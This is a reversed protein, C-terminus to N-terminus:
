LDASNRHFGNPRIPSKGLLRIATNRGFKLAPYIWRLFARGGMLRLIPSRGILINIAWVADGGWYVAEGTDVIMGEDIPFGRRAYAEVMDPVDRADILDVEGVAKKLRAFSVYSRCFPCEGDYLVRFPLADAM